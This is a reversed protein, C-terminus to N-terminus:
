PHPMWLAELCCHWPRVVEQTFSKERVDLRNPSHTPLNKCAFKSGEQIAGIGKEWPLFQKGATKWGKGQKGEQVNQFLFFVVVWFVARKNLCVVPPM